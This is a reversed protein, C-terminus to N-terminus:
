NRLWWQTTYDGFAVMFVLKEEPKVLVSLVADM